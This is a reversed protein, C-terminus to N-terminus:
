VHMRYVGRLNPQSQESIFRMKSWFGRVKGDNDPSRSSHNEKFTSLKYKDRM